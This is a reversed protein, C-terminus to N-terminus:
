AGPAGTVDYARLRGCMGFGREGSLEPARHLSASALHEGVGAALAQAVAVSATAQALPGAGIIERWAAARSRVLSSAARYFERLPQEDGASLADRLSLFGEVALDRRRAADAATDELRDRRSLTAAERYRAPDAVIEAPFTMVADGSEPLGANGMIVLVQLDGHNVARHITGPTFWVVSGPRLETERAGSLDLTHLAGSGGIVVYCETSALHMHPTGGVLGDPGADDYVDLLTVSTAGPFTSPAASM